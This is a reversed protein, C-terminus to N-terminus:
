IEFIKVKEWDVLNDARSLNIFDFDSLLKSFKVLSQKLGHYSKFKRILSLDKIIPQTADFDRPHYYTMNYSSRKFYHRILWYPFLRFYGGGGVVIQKGLVSYTSMPFEKLVLGNQKIIFPTYMGINKFGGFHHKTPFVSCDIEIGNQALVEFAWLNSEGISFAPARFINVKEGTIQSISDISRRIDAEFESYKQNIILNHVDSHSGIDHGNKHIKKLLEPYKRAVWGLCFFTSRINYEDLIELIIDSNLMIRSEYQDWIKENNFSKNFKIHFWDEIDFSLINM